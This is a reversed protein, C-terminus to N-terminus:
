FTCEEESRSKLELNKREKCREENEKTLVFLIRIFFITLFVSENEKQEKNKSSFNSTFRYRPKDTEKIRCVIRYIRSALWSYVRRPSVVVDARSDCILFLIAADTTNESLRDRGLNFSYKM